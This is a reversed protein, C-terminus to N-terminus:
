HDVLQQWNFVGSDDYPVLYKPVLPASLMAKVFVGFSVMKRQFILILFWM